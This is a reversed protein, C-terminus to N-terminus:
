WRHHQRQGRQSFGGRGQAHDLKRAPVFRRCAFRFECVRYIAAARGQDGDRRAGSAIAFCSSECAWSAITLRVNDILFRISPSSINVVNTQSSIDTEDVLCSLAQAALFPPMIFANSGFSFSSLSKRFEQDVIREPNGVRWIEKLAKKYVLAGAVEDSTPEDLSGSSEIKPVALARRVKCLEIADKRQLDANDNAAEAGPRGVRLYLADLSKQLADIRANTRTDGAIIGAGVTKIESMLEALSNEHAMRPGGFLPGDQAASECLSAIKLASVKHSILYPRLGHFGDGACVKQLQDADRGRRELLTDVGTFERERETPYARRTSILVQQEVGDGHQESVHDM